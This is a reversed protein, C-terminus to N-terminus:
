VLAKGQYWTPEFPTSTHKAAVVRLLVYVLVSFYIARLHTADVGMHAVAM